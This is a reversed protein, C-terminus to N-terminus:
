KKVRKENAIKKIFDNKKDLANLTDKEAKFGKDAMKRLQANSVKGLRVAKTYASQVVIMNAQLKEHKQTLEKLRKEQTPTM